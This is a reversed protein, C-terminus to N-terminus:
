IEYAQLVWQTKKRPFKVKMRQCPVRVYILFNYTSCYIVVIYAYADTVYTVYRHLRYDDKIRYLIGSSFYQASLMSLVGKNTM